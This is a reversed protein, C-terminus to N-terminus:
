GLISQLFPMAKVRVKDMWLLNYGLYRSCTSFTNVNNAKSSAEVDLNASSISFEWFILTALSTFWSSSLDWDFSVPLKFCVNDFNLLLKNLVVYLWSIERQWSVGNESWLMKSNSELIEVRMFISSQDYFLNLVLTFKGLMCLRAVESNVFSVKSWTSHFLLYQESFCM